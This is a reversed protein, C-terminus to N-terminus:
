EDHADEISLATEIYLNEIGDVATLLQKRAQSANGADISDSADSVAGMLLAYMKKYPIM